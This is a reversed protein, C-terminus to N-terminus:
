ADQGGGTGRGSDVEHARGGACSHHVGEAERGTKAGMVSRLLLHRGAGVRRSDGVALVSFRLANMPSGGSRALKHGPAPSPRPITALLLLRTQGESSPAIVPEAAGFQTRYGTRSSRVPHSLRNPHGSSPAIVPDAPRFQTRYGTRSAPVPHSLRNPQESSPAIVPEAAGFQTRYGTRSAPVPHSLRNPQGSSPAIVPDAPQFQTRYRLRSSDDHRERRDASRARVLIM